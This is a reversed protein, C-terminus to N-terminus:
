KMAASDNSAQLISICEHIYMYIYIGMNSPESKNHIYTHVHIGM